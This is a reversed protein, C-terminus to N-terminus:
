KGRAKATCTIADIRIVTVHEAMAESIKHEKGTQTKM